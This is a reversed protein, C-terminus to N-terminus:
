VMISEAFDRQLVKGSTPKKVLILIAFILIFYWFYFTLALYNCSVIHVVSLSMLRIFFVCWILRNLVWQLSFQTKSM